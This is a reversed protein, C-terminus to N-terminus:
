EQEGGLQREVMDITEEVDIQKRPQMLDAFRDRLAKGQAQYWLSDTVYVRYAKEEARQKVYAAVYRFLAHATMPGTYTGIALWVGERDIGM